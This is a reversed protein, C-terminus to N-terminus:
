GRLKADIFARQPLQVGREKIEDRKEVGIEIVPGRYTTLSQYYIKLSQHWMKLNHHNTMPIHRTVIEPKIALTMLYTRMVVLRKRNPGFELSRKNELHHIEMM